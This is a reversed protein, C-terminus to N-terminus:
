EPSAEPKQLTAIFRRLKAVDKRGPEEEFRSNLDIGACLPHSFARIREGDDEGIGGSLLFPVTERYAELIRWDYQEGSGGYAPTKTDFLFYDCSGEYAACAELDAPEAVQFAKIVQVGSQRIGSCFAPSESGHLQVADLRYRVVRDNVRAAEENVFVGVRQVGDPLVQLWEPQLNGAYRPSLSYFVFGMWTVPLRGTERINGPERMGCIKIKM